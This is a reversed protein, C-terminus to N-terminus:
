KNKKGTPRAIKKRPSDSLTPVNPSPPLNALPPNKPAPGLAGSKVGTKKAAQVPKAQKAPTANTKGQKVTTAPQTAPKAAPRAADQAIAPTTTFAIALFALTLLKNMIERNIIAFSYLYCYM